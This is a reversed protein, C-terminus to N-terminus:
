EGGVRGKLRGVAGVCGETHHQHRNADMDAEDELQMLVLVLCRLMRAVNMQILKKLRSLEQHIWCDQAIIEGDGNWLAFCAFGMDFDAESSPISCKRVGTVGDLNYTCNVYAQGHQDIDVYTSEMLKTRKTHHKVDHAPHKRLYGDVNHLTFFRSEVMVVICALLLARSSGFDM